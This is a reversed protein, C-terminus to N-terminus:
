GLSTNKTVINVGNRSIVKCANKKIESGGIYVSFVGLDLYPIKSRRLAPNHPHTCAENQYFDCRECSVVCKNLFSKMKESFGMDKSLEM